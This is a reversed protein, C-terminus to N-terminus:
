RHCHRRAILTHHFFSTPYQENKQQHARSEGGDPEPENVQLYELAPLQRTAGLPLL